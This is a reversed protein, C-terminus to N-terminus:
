DESQLMANGLQEILDTGTEISQRIMDNQSKLEARLQRLEANQQKQQELIKSVQGSIHFVFIPLLFLVVSYVLAIVFLIQGFFGLSEMM